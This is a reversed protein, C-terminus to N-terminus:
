QEKFDNIDNGVALQAELNALGPRKTPGPKQDRDCIDIRSVVLHCSLMTFIM